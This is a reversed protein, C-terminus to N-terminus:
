PAVERVDAIPSTGFADSLAYDILQRASDEPTALKGTQKLEEFRSRLPFHDVSTSRITAQMGTDVVGPAVSSIRVGDPADLAVARAHHDLAAKTACYVSWGAYANRAAGSSIHVIRREQAQVSALANALMLPAAVNLTVARAIASADQAGPPAIPDVMGANNFLVVCQAGQAFRQLAGGALWQELAAPDALDLTAEVFDADRSASTSRKRQALSPHASRGVGLVDIQRELLLEALAAGLGRSHGTVIARVPSPSIVSQTM